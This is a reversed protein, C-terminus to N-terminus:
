SQVLTLKSKPSYLDPHKEIVVAATKAVIEDYNKFLATLPAYDAMVNRIKSEEYGQNLLEIYTFTDKILEDKPVPTFKVTKGNPKKATFCYEEKNLDNFSEYAVTSDIRWTQRSTEKEKLFARYIGRKKRNRADMSLQDARQQYEKFETSNLFTQLGDSVEQILQSDIIEQKKLPFSPHEWGQNASLHWAIALLEDESFLGTGELGEGLYNSTTYGKDSGLRISVNALIFKNIPINIIKGTSNSIQSKVQQEWALIDNHVDTLEAFARRGRDVENDWYTPMAGCRQIEDHIVLSNLKEFATDFPLGEPLHIIVPATVKAKRLDDKLEISDYFSNFIINGSKKDEKWNSFSLDPYKAGMKYKEFSQKDMEYQYLWAKYDNLRSLDHAKLYEQEEALLNEILSREAEPANEDLLCKFPSNENGFKLDSLDIRGGSIIENGKYELSVKTKAYGRNEFLNYNFLKKDMYNMTALAVYADEGIFVKDEDELGLMNSLEMSETWHIILKLDEFM